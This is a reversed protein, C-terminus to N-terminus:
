LIRSLLGVQTLSASEIIVAKKRAKQSEGSMKESLIEVSILCRVM